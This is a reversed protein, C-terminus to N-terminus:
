VRVPVRAESEIVSVIHPSPSLVGIGILDEATRGMRVVGLAEWDLAESLRRQGVRLEADSYRAPVFEMSVRFGEASRGRQIPALGVIGITYGRPYEHRVGGVLDPGLRDILIELFREGDIQGDDVNTMGWRGM